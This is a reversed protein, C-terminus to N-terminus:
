RKPQNHKPQNGKKSKMSSPSAGEHQKQQMTAAPGHEHEAEAHNTTHVAMGAAPRGQPTGTHPADEHRAARPDRDSRNNKAM